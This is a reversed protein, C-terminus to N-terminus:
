LEVRTSVRRYAYSTSSAWMRSSTTTTLNSSESVFKPRAASTKTNTCRRSYTKENVCIPSTM